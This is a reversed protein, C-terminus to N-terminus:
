VYMAATPKPTPSVSGPMRLLQWHKGESPCYCLAVMGYKKPRHEDKLPETLWGVGMVMFTSRDTISLEHPPVFSPRGSAKTIKCYRQLSALLVSGVNVGQMLPEVGAPLEDSTETVQIGHRRLVEVVTLSGFYCTGTNARHLINAWRTGTAPIVTVRPIADQGKVVSWQIPRSPAARRRSFVGAANNTLCADALESPISCDIMVGAIKTTSGLITDLKVANVHELLMSAPQWRVLSPAVEVLVPVTGTVTPAGLVTGPGLQIANYDSHATVEPQFMISPQGIRTVWARRAYLVVRVVIDESLEVLFSNSEKSRAQKQFWDLMFARYENEEEQFPSPNPAAGMRLVVPDHHHLLNKVLVAYQEHQYIIAFLVVASEPVSIWAKFQKDDIANMISDLSCTPVCSALSVDQWVHAGHPSLMLQHGSSPSHLCAVCRNETTQQEVLGTLSALFDDVSPNVFGEERDSAFIITPHLQWQFVRGQVKDVKSIVRGRVRDTSIGVLACGGAHLVLAVCCYVVAKDHISLGQTATAALSRYAIVATRVPLDHANLREPEGPKEERMLVPMRELDVSGPPLRGTSGVWGADMNETDLVCIDVLTRVYLYRARIFQSGPSVRVIPGTGEIAPQMGLLAHVPHQTHVGVLRSCPCFVQHLAVAASPQAAVPTHTLRLKVGSSSVAAAAPTRSAVAAMSQAPSAPISSRALPQANFRPPPALSLNFLSAADEHLGM